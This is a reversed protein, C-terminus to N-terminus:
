SAVHPEVRHTAGVLDPAIELREPFAIERPHVPFRSDALVPSAGDIRWIHVANGVLSVGDNSRAGWTSTYAVNGHTWVEAMYRATMGGKGIVSLASGTFPQLGTASDSGCGALVFSSLASIALCTNRVSRYMPVPSPSSGRTFRPILSISPILPILPILPM